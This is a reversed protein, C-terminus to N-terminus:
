ASRRSASRRPRAVPPRAARRRTLTSREEQLAIRSKPGSRKRSRSRPAGGPSRTRSRPRPASRRRRAPRAALPHQLAARAADAEALTSSGATGRRPRRCSPRPRRARRRSGRRRAPAPARQRLVSRRSVLSLATISRNWIESSTPCASASRRGTTASSVVSTACPKGGPSPMSTPRSLSRRTRAAPPTGAVIPTRSPSSRTPRVSSSSPRKVASARLTPGRSRAAAIACPTTPAVVTPPM